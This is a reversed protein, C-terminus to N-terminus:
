AAEALDQGASAKLWRRTEGAAGATIQGRLRRRREARKAHARSAAAPAARERALDLRFFGDGWPEAGAATFFEDYSKVLADAGCKTSALQNSAAVALITRLGLGSALGEAAALLVAKPQIDGFAKTAHRIALFAGPVGQMRSILLVHRDALGFIEGPAITAGLVYLSANEDHLQLQLEGEEHRDHTATVLVRHESGDSQHVHLVAAGAILTDLVPATLAEVLFGYHGYYAQVSEIGRFSKALYNPERARDFAMNSRLHKARLESSHALTAVVDGLAPRANLHGDAVQGDEPERGLIARYCEVVDKRRAARLMATRFAPLRFRSIRRILLFGFRRSRASVSRSRGRAEMAVMATRRGGRVGSV